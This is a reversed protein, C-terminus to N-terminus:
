IACLPAPDARTNAEYEPKYCGRECPEWYSPLQHHVPKETPKSAEAFSEDFEKRVETVISRADFGNQGAYIQWLPPHDKIKAYLLPTAVTHGNGNSQAHWRCGTLVCGWASWFLGGCDAAM